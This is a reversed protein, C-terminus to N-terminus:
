DSENNDISFSLLPFGENNDLLGSLIFSLEVDNNNSKSILKSEM